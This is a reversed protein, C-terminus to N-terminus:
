TTVQWGGTGFPPHVMIPAVAMGAHDGSHSPRAHPLLSPRALIASLGARLERGRGAPRAGDTSSASSPTPGATPCADVGGTVTRLAQDREVGRRREGAM